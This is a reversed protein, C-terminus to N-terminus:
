KVFPILGMNDLLVEAEENKSDVDLVRQWARRAESFDGQQYYIRGLAIYADTFKKDIKIAQNFYELAQEDKGQAAYLQGVVLAVEKAQPYVQLAREFVAAAFDNNGTIEFFNGLQVLDNFNDSSLYQPLKQQIKEKTLGYQEILSKNSNQTRVWVAVTLDLYIMKWTKDATINKLFTRGWPTGDTHAFFIYDIKYVEESYHKWSMPDTQMPIYVSQLFQAPYAEPRGDVFVKEGPYLRWILYSGIDFNNFARGSIKNTKLFDVAAGAGVPVSLGFRESKLFKLYYRNFVAAYVSGILIAFIVLATLFRLFVRVGSREWKVFYRAYNQRVSSFNGVLVPLALLGLFPFNRVALGALILFLVSSLLYFLRLRRFNVLFSFILVVATIKFASILPNAMLKELFWPSQNEVITYGYNQFVNLPYLAGRWTNPNLFCVLGLLVGALLIQIIYKDIKRNRAALYVPKRRAWLRDLFFFFMLALGFGFSIHFNVWLLQLPILLWFHWRIKERNKEFILLFFAFILFAFIEPRIDYRELMLSISLFSALVSLLFYKKRYAVFFVIVFSALITLASFIILGKFGVALYLLYFIVESLWHHNIFPFDPNTYSFLNTKPVSKTQWIIEGTKLHRGLDQNIATASHILFAALAVFVLGILAIRLARSWSFQGFDFKLRIEWGRKEPEGEREDTAVGPREEMAKEKLPKVPEEDKKRAEFGPEAKPQIIEWM